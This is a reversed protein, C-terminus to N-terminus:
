FKKTCFNCNCRKRGNARTEPVVDAYIAREYIEDEVVPPAQPLEDAFKLEELLDIPAVAVRAISVHVLCTVSVLLLLVKTTFKM